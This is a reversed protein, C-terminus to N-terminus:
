PTRRERRVSFTAAYSEAKNKEKQVELEKETIEARAISASLERAHAARVAALEARADARQVVAPALMAEAEALETRVVALDVANRQAVAAAAAAAEDQAEM